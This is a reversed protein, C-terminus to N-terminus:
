DNKFEGYYYKTETDYFLDCGLALMKEVLKNVFQTPDLGFQLFRSLMADTKCYRELTKLEDVIVHDVELRAIGVDKTSSGYMDVFISKGRRGLSSAAACVVSLEGVGYGGKIFASHSPWGIVVPNSIEKEGKILKHLWYLPNCLTTLIIKFNNSTSPYPNM